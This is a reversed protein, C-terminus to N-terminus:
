QMNGDEKLNAVAFRTNRKFELRIIHVIAGRNHLHRAAVMGGGGNNGRGCVVCIIRGSPSAGILHGTLDALNRGANEMMQILQIGYDEIMLRDIENM